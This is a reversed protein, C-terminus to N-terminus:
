VPMTADTRVVSRCLLLWREPDQLWAKLRIEAAEKCPRKAGACAAATAKRGLASTRMNGRGIPFKTMRKHMELFVNSALLDPFKDLFVGTSATLDELRAFLQTQLM